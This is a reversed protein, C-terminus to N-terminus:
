CGGIREGVYIPEENRLFVNCLLLAAVTSCSALYANNKWKYFMLFNLLYIVVMFLVYKYTVAEAVGLKMNQYVLSLIVNLLLGGIIPKGWRKILVFVTVAEYHDYLYHVVGGVIVVTRFVRNRQKASDMVERVYGKLLCTIFATIGVAVYNIQKLVVESAASMAVLM